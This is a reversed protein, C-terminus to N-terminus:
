KSVHESLIGRCASHLKALTKMEAGDFCCSLLTEFVNTKRRLVVSSTETVRLFTLRSSSLILLSFHFLASFTSSSTFTFPPTFISELTAWEQSIYCTPISSEGETPDSLLSSAAAPSVPLVPTVLTHSSAFIPFRSSPKTNNKGSETLTGVNKFVKMKLCKIKHGLIFLCKGFGALLGPRLLLLQLFLQGLTLGLEGFESVFQHFNLRLKLRGFVLSCTANMTNSRM